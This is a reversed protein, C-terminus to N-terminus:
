KLLIKLALRLRVGSYDLAMRSGDRNAVAQNAVEFDSIKAYAYSLSPSLIVRPGAHGEGVLGGELGIGSGTVDGSVAGEGTVAVEVKGAAALVGLRGVLGFRFPSSSPPLYEVESFFFDAPFDYTIRGSYDAIESSGTLREYGGAISLTPSPYVGVRVGYAWGRKITDMSYGTIAGLNAIDDNVDSMSYTNIGGSGGIWFESGSRAVGAFTLVLVASLM